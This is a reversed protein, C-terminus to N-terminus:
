IRTIKPEFRVMKGKGWEGRSNMLWNPNNTEVNNIRTGEKVLRDLVTRAGVEHKMVFLSRAGETNGEHHERIHKGLVGAGKIGGLHSRMRKHLSTGNQGLYKSKDKSGRQRQDSVGRPNCGICTIIYNSGVVSCGPGVLCPEQWDCQQTPFPDNVLLGAGVPVGAGEIVKTIGKDPGRLSGISDRMKQALRSGPTTPVKMVQRVDGKVFWSSKSRGPKNFKREMIEVRGRYLPSGGTEHARKMNKYRANAGKIVNRRFGEPYGSIMLQWSFRDLHSKVQEWPLAPHCNRIRRMAEQFM